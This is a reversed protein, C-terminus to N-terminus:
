FFCLALKDVATEEFEGLSSIEGLKNAIEAYCYRLGKVANEINGVPLKNKLIECHVIIGRDVELKLYVSEGSIISEKSYSFKPSTGYNWQWTSYKNKARDRIAAMHENSIDVKQVGQPFMAKLLLAQFEDLTLAKNAIHEKINTVESKVSKVANSIFKGEKVTLLDNLTLLDTDFLLTGHHLIRGRKIAQASGSIKKGEIAIDCTRRKAANIGLSKLASVVPNLFVDYDVYSDPNHNKIFSYNLNGRDHFVTGGGSIRRAVNINLKEAAKINIEEFVNQYKGIVISKDNKWFLLYSDDNFNNFIYEELALNFYVNNSTSEIYKM